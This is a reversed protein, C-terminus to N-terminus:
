VRLMCSKREMEKKELFQLFANTHIIWQSCIEGNVFTQRYVIQTDLLKSRLHPGVNQQAEDPNLNNAFTM